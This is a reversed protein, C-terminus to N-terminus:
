PIPRLMCQCAHSKLEGLTQLEYKIVHAHPSLFAHMAQGLLRPAGTSTLVIYNGTLLEEEQLSPTIRLQPSHTRIMGVWPM